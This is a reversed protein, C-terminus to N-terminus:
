VVLPYKAAIDARAPSDFQNPYALGMERNNATTFNAYWTGNQRTTGMTAFEGTRKPM